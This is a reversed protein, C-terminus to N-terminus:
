KGNELIELYINECKELAQRIKWANAFHFARYDDTLLIGDPQANLVHVGSVADYRGDKLFLRSGFDQAFYRIKAVEHRQMVTKTKGKKNIKEEEIRCFDCEMVCYGQFDLSYSIDFLGYGSGTIERPLSNYGENDKLNFADIM